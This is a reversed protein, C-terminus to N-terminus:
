GGSGPVGGNHFQGGPKGGGSFQGGGNFSGGPGMSQNTTIGSASLYTVTDSLTFTVVSTDGSYLTYTQGTKLGPGSIAASSYQKAPTFSAVINGSEDKVTVPTGAAQESEYYMLISPQSSSDDGTQAMGSSGTAVLVGGSIEFGANYDLPGNGSNTPGDVYTMGGTMVFSGNSDLGDGGANVYITGGSITLVGSNDYVNFGDDSATVKIDGNGVTVLKGEIGEYANEMTISGGNIVVGSDAHIGDDGASISLTGNNIVIDGVSNLSDEYSSLTFQGGNIIIGGDAKLCKKSDSVSSSDVATDDSSNTVATTSIMSDASQASLASSTDNPQTWQKGMNGQGYNTNTKVNGSYGGGASLEFTGGDVQLVSYAQIADNNATIKYIGDKILINGLGADTDNTSRMGDKGATITVSCKEIALVDKGVIGDSAATIVLTGDTIKLEDKSTIGDNYDSTVNLTGGGTITLDANSYIAASPENDSNLTVGGGQYVTNTTNNELILVVNKADKVYIPASATSSISANNLVLYVTGEDVSKDIDVVLSGDALTGSIEYIGSKTIRQTGTSMDLASYSNSKWDFYYDSSDFRVQVSDTSAAISTATTSSGTTSSGTTSSNSTTSTVTSSKDAASCGALIALSLAVSLTAAVIKKNRVASAGEKDQIVQTYLGM